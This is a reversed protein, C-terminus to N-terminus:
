QRSRNQAKMALCSELKFYNMTIAIKLLKKNSHLLIMNKTYDNGNSRFKKFRLYKKTMKVKKKLANLSLMQDNFIICVCM